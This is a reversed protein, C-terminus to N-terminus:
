INLLHTREFSDWSVYAWTTEVICFDFVLFQFQFVDVLVLLINGYTQWVIVMWVCSGLASTLVLQTSVKVVSETLSPTPEPSCSLCAICLFFFVQTSAWLPMLSFPSPFQGNQFSTVLSLMSLSPNPPQSASLSCLCPLFWLPSDPWILLPRAPFLVHFPGSDQYKPIM